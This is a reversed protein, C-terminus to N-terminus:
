EDAGDSFSRKMAQVSEEMQKRLVSQEILKMTLAILAKLHRVDKTAYKRLYHAEDNRLWSALEASERISQDEIFQKICRGLRCQEIEEHKSPNERKAYDKVLFELAKGYGLGCVQTLEGAEAAAAEAYIACFGPSIAQISESFSPMHQAWIRRGMLAIQKDVDEEVRKRIERVHQKRAILVVALAGAFLGLIFIGLETM